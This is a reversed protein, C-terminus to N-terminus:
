PPLLVDGWPSALFAVSAGFVAVSRVVSANDPSTLTEYTNWFFSKPARSRSSSSEVMVRRPPM